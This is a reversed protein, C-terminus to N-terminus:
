WYVLFNFDKTSLGIKHLYSNLIVELFSSIKNKRYLFILEKEIKEKAKDAEYIVSVALQSSNQLVGKSSISLRNNNTCNSRNRKIFCETSKLYFKEGAKQSLAENYVHQLPFHLRSSRYDNSDELPERHVQFKSYKNTCV